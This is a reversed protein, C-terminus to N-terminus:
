FCAELCTTGVRIFSHPMGEAASIINKSDSRLPYVTFANRSSVVVCSCIVAIYINSLWDIRTHQTMSTQELKSKSFLLVYWRAKSDIDMHTCGETHSDFITPDGGNSVSAGGIRSLSLRPSIRSLHDEGVDDLVVALFSLIGGNSLVAIVDRGNLYTQETLGDPFSAIRASAVSCFLQQHIASSLVPIDGHSSSANSAILLEISDRRVIVLGNNNHNEKEGIPHFSLPLVCVLKASPSLTRTYFCDKGLDKPPEAAMTWVTITSFLLSLM